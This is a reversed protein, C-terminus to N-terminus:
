CSSPRETNRAASWHVSKNKIQLGKEPLAQGPIRLVYAPNQAREGRPLRLKDQAFEASSEQLPQAAAAPEKLDGEDLFAWSYM